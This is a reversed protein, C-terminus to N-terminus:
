QDDARTPKKRISAPVPVKPPDKKTVHIEIASIGNESSASIIRGFRNIDQRCKPCRAGGIARNEAIYRACSECVVIHGCPILIIDGLAEM